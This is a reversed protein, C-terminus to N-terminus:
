MFPSLRLCHSVVPSLVVESGLFGVVGVLVLAALDLTANLVGVTLQKPFFCMYNSKTEKWLCWCWSLWLCTFWSGVLRGDGILHLLGKGAFAMMHLPWRSVFLHRADSHNPDTGIPTINKRSCFDDLGVPEIPNGSVLPTLRRSGITRTITVDSIWFLWDSKLPNAPHHLPIFPWWWPFFHQFDHMLDWGEKIHIYVRTCSVSCLTKFVKVQFTWQYIHFTHM